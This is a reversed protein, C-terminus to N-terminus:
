SASSTASTTWLGFRFVSLLAICATEVRLVLTGLTVPPLGAAAFAAVEDGAFGGEGGVFLTVDAPASARLGAVVEPLPQGGAGEYAFVGAGGKARAAPVLEALPRPAAVPMGEGRGSQRTAARVIREWRAQRVRLGESMRREFSHASFFPQVSAAGLEVAKELVADFVAPRCMGLALHVRPLPLPPVARSRLIVGALERRGAPLLEVEHLRGDGTLIEIHDGPQFRCVDRVHHLVDGTLAVRGDRVSDADVWFRRLVV